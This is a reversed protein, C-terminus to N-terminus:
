YASLICSLGMMCMSLLIMGIITNQQSRMIAREAGPTIGPDRLAARCRELKKAAKYMVYLYLITPGAVIAM